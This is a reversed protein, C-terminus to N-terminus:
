SSQRFFSVLLFLFSIFDNCKRVGVRGVVAACIFCSTYHSLFALVLRYLWLFRSYEIYFLLYYRVEASNM